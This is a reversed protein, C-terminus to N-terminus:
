KFSYVPNDRMECIRKNRIFQSANFANTEGIIPAAMVEATQIEIEFLIDPVYFDYRKPCGQRMPCKRCTNQRNCVMSLEASRPRLNQPDIPRLM